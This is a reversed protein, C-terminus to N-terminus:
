EQKFKEKKDPLNKKQEKGILQVSLLRKAMWVMKKKGDADIENYIKSLDAIELNDAMGLLGKIM